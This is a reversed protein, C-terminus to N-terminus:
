GAPANELAPAVDLFFGEAAWQAFWDHLQAAFSDFATQAASAITAIAAGVTDGGRLATLLEFQPKTLDHRRVVFNRRNVALYTAAPAPPDPRESRRTASYYASVPFRFSELRLCPVCVLRSDSWRDTPVARLKEVDLLRQGEVGPGDFVQSFTWELRALDILFDAWDPADGARPPRTEELDRAFNEGLRALTYSRSPHRILYELAFGAFADGGLAAALVPFEAELCEVLRAYYANAYVELRQVSTLAASRSVIQEVDAPAADIASRAEDSALGAPVGDPHTIVTQMWRQLNALDRRQDNM